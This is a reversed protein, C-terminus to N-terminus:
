LNNMIEEDVVIVIITTKMSKLIIKKSLIKINSINKTLFVVKAPPSLAINQM